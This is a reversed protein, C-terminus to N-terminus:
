HIEAGWREVAKALEPFQRAAEALPVGAVAADVAQRMAKAGATAGDPHGQIAGGVAFLVDNGLDRIIQVAAAPHIGGGPIPLSPKIQHLPLTLLQATRVYNEHLLPYVSYPSNFPTADSGCLRMLKGLLLPSSIGSSVGETLSAASAYHALIPVNIAPDNAIAQIMGLGSTVANIMVVDAGAEVVRRGNELVRDPRDTINICVLARHGTEEYVQRAATSYAHARDWVRSFAPNGMLEDDKIIDAGGCAAEAFMEAGTQPTFGTNPKIVNLILPRDPVGLRERIGAIGFRPGGFGATLEPSFHLDLLKIQASTSVDNGLLATLMMPFQPGFNIEPFAIQVMLRRKDQPLNFRLEVPPVDYVAVVRGMYRALMEDTLGPVDTWTGISQGIALSAAKRLADGGAEMELYYTALLYERGAVQESYAFAHQYPDM